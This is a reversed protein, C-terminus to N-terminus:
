SSFFLVYYLIIAATYGASVGIFLYTVIRFLPNDGFLYSFVLLTLFFGVLTWIYDM